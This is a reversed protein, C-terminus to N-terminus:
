PGVTFTTSPTERRVLQDNSGSWSAGITTM